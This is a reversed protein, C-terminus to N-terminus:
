KKSMKEFKKWYNEIARRLIESVSLGMKKSMTKLWKIHLESLTADIRKMKAGETRQHYVNYACDFFNTLSKRQVFNGFLLFGNWGWPAHSACMKEATSM